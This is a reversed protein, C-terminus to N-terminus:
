ARHSTAPCVGSEQLFLQMAFMRPWPLGVIENAKCKNTNARSRLHQADNLRENVCRDKRIEFSCVFLIQEQDLNLRQPWAAAVGLRRSLM